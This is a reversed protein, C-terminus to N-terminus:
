RDSRQDSRTMSAVRVLAKVDGRRCENYNTEVQLDMNIDDETELLGTTQVDCNCRVCQKRNSDWDCLSEVEKPACVNVM